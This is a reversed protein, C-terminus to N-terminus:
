IGLLAGPSVIKEDVATKLMIKFEAWPMDKKFRKLLESKEKNTNADILANMKADSGGRITAVNYKQIIRKARDIDEKKTLTGVGFISKLIENGYKAKGEKDKQYNRVADNILANEDLLRRANEGEISDKVEKLKESTGYDSIKIFRGVINGVMPLTLFKQGPTKERPAYDHIDFTLFTGGGLQQFLWGFFPKAAYLGGAKFETDTLVNRGRFADYPNQGTIYQAVAIPGSITPTLSPVQGGLLSIVDQADRLVSQEGQGSNIAKWFIGGILRSTEDQPVRLYVTKGTSDKGFPVITYNTKDYESVDNMMDKVASGALGAGALYMLIKPLITIKATKWWYASRTKPGTAISLDSTIGQLIANSFLFVENTIPKAWGGDLFDPSGINRRIFDRKEATLPKKGGDSLEYMGAVKPLSEILNGMKEIFEMVRIIPKLIKAREPSQNFSEIGATKLINKIQADEVHEGKLIDNMTVSLIQSEEASRILADAEIDAKTPNSPLGFARMKAPLLSKKYLRLARLITMSPVNKYFRTFDRILNFSQFGLNFTIFLPRFSKSNATRLASLVASNEGITSRQMSKAVYEDVYYGEPKGAVMHILLEGEKHKPDVIERFKGNWKTNAQKIETPFNELMFRKVAGAVKNREVAKITAITKLITADAPNSIDKLTGISEYVKSSMTLEMHEVVQFSAYAPNDLMKQYLEQTYLGEKFASEAVERVGSRFVEMNELLIKTKEAGLEKKLAEYNKAADEPRIGRPNAVESRDGAVIREYFLAEGFDNWSMGAEIIGQYAKGFTRESIAKIKGGLYNSERLFYLPNDDPNIEIGKKELENIRDKVGQHKTVLEFQLKSIISKLTQKREAIRQKWLDAAKIESSEFMGRVGERRHKVVVEENGALIDQLEFFAQKVTPKRDLAEFFRKYFKPAMKELTGPSNFLISIADAYLEDPQMRYNRYADSKIESIKINKMEFVPTEIVGGAVEKEEIMQKGTAPDIKPVEIQPPRWYESVALLEAKIEKLTTGSNKIEEMVAEKRGRVETNVKNRADKSNIYENMSIGQEAMVEDKLNKVVQKLTLPEFNEGLISSRYKRLSALRGLLNGRSLNMDPLWDTLHGIEHALTKSLQELKDKKFLDANLELESSNGKAMFTGNNPNGNMTSMRGPTKVVPVKGMLERALDVIEPFEMPKITELHGAEIPTGDRYNGISARGLGAGKEKVAKPAYKGEPRENEAIYEDITGSKDAKIPNIDIKVGDIRLPKRNLANFMDDERAEGAYEVLIDLDSKKNAVGKSRSGTIEIDKIEFDLGDLENSEKLNEIHSKVEQKIEGVTQQMGQPTFSDALRERAKPKGNASEVAPQTKPKKGGIEVSKFIDEGGEVPMLLGVVKGSELYVVPKIKGGTVVHITADPLHKKMFAVKDLDLAIRVNGDTFLGVNTGQVRKVERHFVAEAGIDSAKPMVQNVDPFKASKAREAMADKITKTISEASDEKNAKRITNFDARETDSIMKDLIKGAVDKKSILLFGNTFIGEEKGKLVLSDFQHSAVKGEPTALLKLTSELSGIIVPEGTKNLQEKLVEMRKSKPIKEFPEGYKQQSLKSLEVTDGELEAQSFAEKYETKKGDKISPAVAEKPAIEKKPKAVEAKGKETLTVPQQLEEDVFDLLQEETPDTIGKDKGILQTFYKIDKPTLETGKPTVLKGANQIAGAIAVPPVMPEPVQPAPLAPEPQPAPAKVPEVPGFGTAKAPDGATLFGRPAIKAEGQPTRTVKPEANLGFIARDAETAIPRIFSKIKAFWPKDAVTVIKESPLEVTTGSRLGTMRANNNSKGASERPLTMLWTKYAQAEEPTFKATGIIQAERIKGADLYVREPLKYSEITQKTFGEVTKTSFAKHVGKLAFTTALLGLIDVLAKVTETSNEPLADSFNEIKKGTALGILKKAGTDIAMFSGLGVLTAIPAAVLAPLAMMGFGIGAVQGLEETKTKAREIGFKDKTANLNKEAEELTVVNKPVGTVESIYAINKRAVHALVKDRQEQSYVSPIEVYKDLGIEKAIEAYYKDNVIKVTAYTDDRKAREEAFTDKLSLGELVKDTTTKNKKDDLISKAWMPTNEKTGAFKGQSLFTKPLADVESKNVISSPSDIDKTNLDFRALDLQKQNQKEKYADFASKETTVPKAQSMSQKEKYAQFASKEAVPAEAVPVPTSEPQSDMGFFERASDLIGKPKPTVIEPTVKEPQVPAPTAGGLKAKYDSFASM